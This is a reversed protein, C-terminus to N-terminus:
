EIVPDALGHRGHLVELPHRRQESPEVDLALTLHQASTM